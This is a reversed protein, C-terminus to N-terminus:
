ITGFGKCTQYLWELAVEDKGQLRPSMKEFSTIHYWALWSKEASTLLAEEILHTAFPIWNLLEFGYWVGQPTGAQLAQNSPVVIALNELRIGGWDPVYYGPEISNVTHLTMPETYVKSIGNPGEHVNLFCGVGHGTGHAYDYGAQWLPYRCVGDLQAGTTGKPFVASAGAIHSKLVHTYAHKHVPSLVTQDFTTTRTIDTTGFPYQAGSDLLIWDGRSAKVVSSPTGYHIVASHRGIGAITNFSLEVAGEAKYFADITDALERESVFQGAKAQADLWALTRIVAVSSRVNAERMGALEEATKVSKKRQLLNPGIKLRTGDQSLANAVAQSHAAPTWYVTKHYALKPLEEWISAYPRLTLGNEKLHYIAQQTSPSADPADAFLLAQTSDVWLFAHFVPNYPIDRGRTNTFWAIDDLKSVFIGDCSADALARQLWNLKERTPRGHVHTEVTQWSPSCGAPMGGKSTSSSFLSQVPNEELALFRLALPGTTEELGALLSASVTKPDYAVVAGQALTALCEKLTPQGELGLKSVKVHTQPVEAEAQEYYRGDAFLWVTDQLVLSDGASGTFGILFDRLKAHEALYENLHVDNHPLLFAQWQNQKLVAQLAEIRQIYPM